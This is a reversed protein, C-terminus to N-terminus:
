IGKIEYKGNHLNYYPTYYGGKCKYCEQREINGKSWIKPIINNALLWENVEGYEGRFSATNWKRTTGLYELKGYKITYIDAFQYRGGYKSSGTNTVKYYFHKM